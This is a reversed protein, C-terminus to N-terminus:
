PILNLIKDYEFNHFCRAIAEALAVNEAEIAEIAAAMERKSATVVAKRLMALLEPSLAQINELNLVDARQPIEKDALSSDSYVYRVGLHKEMAQFIQQERFPKRLFDDCGASLVVAREEELVSATLAIIATAQGATTAKIRQTAEFGDMVPMRMDMWILQPQWTEWTEVAEKGNSVEQLEFGFPSLLKVLLQRNIPQDDVILIRYRPQNPELGIIRRQNVQQNEMETAEIQEVQIEFSFITGQGVQSSVRMDGGMLQVFKRSIPLGLGTGEQAQKGSETQTFAEFLKDLDEPAIGTGTDEVEFAIKQSDIRQSRVCIGGASTFKLANNILNILIQRLKVEDTRIYRPLNPAPELLLQLDKDAAKLQFMDHLDDLLRHLDFNKQNLTIRGAEIKSLDLVNNILTLLHEGSRNIISVNEQHENPLTQSRTMIQAFGLIANLPTRLEHSMNAIFTSKAQNAVEAKEKATALETTREKVRSELEQNNKELASFSERLQQAMRNFSQALKSLEDVKSLNVQQNLNGKKMAESAQIIISIPQTIWRSTYIGLASALVLAVLCLLITIRTNEEIQEMFDSEPVITFVVWDVGWKNTWPAIQLFQRRGNIYFDFTQSNKINEFDGKKQLIYKVSESILTEKSDVANLRKPTGNELDFVEESSSSAIMLGNREIIFIKGYKGVKITKLFTSINSIRKEIAIAGILKQQRDYVPVSAAINLPFPSTEWQYVSTFLMRKRAIQEAYWAEKQFQNIYDDDKMLLKTQNGQSDAEYVRFSRDSSRSNIENITIRGDDFHEGVSVHDREISGFLLFGFEGDFDYVERYKWFFRGIKRLDTPEILGQAFADASIEAIRRSNDLYEHLHVDIRKSTEVRLQAALNNIAAQGNRFSLYGVLGVAAFIQAVFPVILVTRLPLRHHNQSFLSNLRKFIIPFNPNNM